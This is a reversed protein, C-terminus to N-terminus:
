GCEDTLVRQRIAGFERPEAERWAAIALAEADDCSDADIVDCTTHAVSGNLQAELILTFNV